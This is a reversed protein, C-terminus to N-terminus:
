EVFTVTRSNADGAKEPAAFDDYRRTRVREIM